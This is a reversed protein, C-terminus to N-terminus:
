LQQDCTRKAAAAAEREPTVENAMITTMEGRKGEASLKQALASDRAAEVEIRLSQAEAELSALLTADGSGFSAEGAKTEVQGKKDRATDRLGKM